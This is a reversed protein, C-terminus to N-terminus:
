AAAEEAVPPPNDWDPAEWDEQDEGALPMWGECGCPKREECKACWVPSVEGKHAGEAWCKPCIDRGDSTRHWGHNRAFRRIKTATTHWPYLGMAQQLCRTGEGGPKGDCNIRIDVSM